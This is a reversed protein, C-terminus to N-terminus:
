NKLLYNFDRVKKYSLYINNNHKKANKRILNYAEVTLNSNVLLAVAEEPTMKISETMKMKKFLPSSSEENAMIDLVESGRKNGNDNLIKKTANIIIQPHLQEQAKLVMRRKTSKSCSEFSVKPRGSM